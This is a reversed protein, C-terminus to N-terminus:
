EKGRNAAGNTMRAREGSRCWPRSDIASRESHRCIESVFDNVRKAVECQVVDPGTIANNLIGTLASRVLYSGRWEPANACSISQHM